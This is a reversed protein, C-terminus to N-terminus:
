QPPPNNHLYYLFTVLEIICSNERCYTDIIDTIQSNTCDCVGVKYTHIFSIFMLIEKSKISYSFYYKITSFDRPIFYMFSLFM